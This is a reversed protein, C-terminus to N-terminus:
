LIPLSGHNMDSKEDSVDIVIKGCDRCLWATVASGKFFSLQSLIISGEHLFARGLLPRKTGKKWSLEHPSQILGQEMEHDCYPCKM